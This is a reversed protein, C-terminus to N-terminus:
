QAPVPRLMGRFEAPTTATNQSAKQEKAARELGRLVETKTAPQANRHKYIAAAIGKIAALTNNDGVPTKARTAVIRNGVASLIQDTSKSNEVVALLVKSSTDFAFRKLTPENAERAMKVRADADGLGNLYQRMVQNIDVKAPKTRQMEKLSGTVPFAMLENQTVTMTAM